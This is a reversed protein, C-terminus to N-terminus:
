RREKPEELLIPLVFVGAVWAVARGSSGRERGENLAFALVALFPLMSLLSRALDAVDASSEDTVPVAEFLRRPDSALESSHVATVDFSLREGDREVEYRMARQDRVERTIEVLDDISSVECSDVLVVRDGEEIGANHAPGGDLLDSVVPGGSASDDTNLGILYRGANSDSASEGESFDMGRLQPVILAVILTDAVALAVLAAAWGRANRKISRIAFYWLFPLSLGPVCIAGLAFHFVFPSPLRSDPSRM